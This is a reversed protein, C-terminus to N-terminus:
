RSRLIRRKVFNPKRLMKRIFLRNKHEFEVFDPNGSNLIKMLDARTMNNYGRRFVENKLENNYAIWLPDAGEEEPNIM